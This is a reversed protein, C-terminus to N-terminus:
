KQFYDIAYAIQNAQIHTCVRTIVCASYCPSCAPFNKNIKEQTHMIWNIIIANSIFYARLNQVM